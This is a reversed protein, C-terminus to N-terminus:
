PLQEPRPMEIEEHRETGDALEVGLQRLSLVLLGERTEVDVANVQELTQITAAMERSSTRLGIKALLSKLLQDNGGGNLPGALLRLTMLARHREIALRVSGSVDLANDSKLSNPRVEIVRHVQQM